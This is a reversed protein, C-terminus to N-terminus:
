EGEASGSVEAVSKKFPAAPLGASNYITAPPNNAWAYRVQVPDAVKDAAVIIENGDPGLVASAPLFKGDAGALEFGNNGKLVVRQNKGGPDFLLLVKADDRRLATVRPGLAVVDKQYIRNLALLALRRGVEQKNKPHINGPDGIDIGSALAAGPVSDAVSQQAERLKAWGPGAATTSGDGFNVLQMMLFPLDTQAWASRWGEILVKMLKAYEHARPVNSEGQYWTVGRVTMGTLPKVRAEYGSGPSVAHIASRVEEQQEPTLLPMPREPESQGRERAVAVAKRWEQIAERETDFKVKLESQMIKNAKALEEPFGSMAERAERPTWYEAPTGGVAAVALGVPVGLSRHLERGFFYAAASFKKATEPTCIQWPTKTGSTFFRIQPHDAAAIERAANEVGGYSCWPGEGLTMEMNSQGACVWVEGSLLNTLTISNKGEVTLDPVEGAPSAPLTVAWATDPGEGITEAVVRDGVKVRVQEGVDAWGTLKVPVDRQLVMNSSFCSPLSVEALCAVPPFVLVLLVIRAGSKM